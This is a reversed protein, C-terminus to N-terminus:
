FDDGGFSRRLTSPAELGLRPGNFILEFGHQRAARYGDFDSVEGAQIQIGVNSPNSPMYQEIEAPLEPLTVQDVDPPVMVVTMRETADKETWFMLLYQADPEVGSSRTWSFTRADVDLVPFGYWPLLEDAVAVDISTTDAAVRLSLVNGGIGPQNPQFQLQVQNSTTFSRPALIDFNVSADELLVEPLSPGEFQVNGRAPVLRPFVSRAESPISSLSVGVQRPTSWTGGLDLTGDAAFAVTGGLWGTTVDAGDVSKVLAQAEGDTLCAEEFTLNTITDNTSTPSCGNSVYYKSGNAGWTVNMNGVEPSDEGEIHIDDGPEVGVVVVAQSGAPAGTPPEAILIIMTSGAEIGDATAAGDADTTLDAAVAGSTDVFVVQNGELPQISGFLKGITVTVSGVARADPSGSDAIGSDGAVTSIDGCGVALLLYALGRARM